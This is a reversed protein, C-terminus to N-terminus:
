RLGASITGGEERSNGSIAFSMVLRHGINGVIDHSKDDLWGGYKGEVLVKALYLPLYSSPGRLHTDALPVGTVSFPRFLQERIDEPLRHSRDEFIIQWTGDAEVCHVTIQPEVGSPTEIRRQALWQMVRIVAVYMDDQKVKIRFSGEVTFKIGSLYMRDKLDVFAKEILEKIEFYVHEEDSDANTVSALIKGAEWLDDAMTNLKHHTNSEEQLNGTTIGREIIGKQDQGLFLCLHSISKLLAAKKQADFYALIRVFHEAIPPRVYQALIGGLKASDDSYKAEDPLPPILGLSLRVNRVNALPVFVAQPLREYLRLEAPTTPSPLHRIDQASVEYVPSSGRVEHTIAQLRAYAPQYGRPLDTNTLCNQTGSEDTLLLAYPADLCAGLEDALTEQCLKRVATSLTRTSNSIARINEAVCRRELRLARKLASARVHRIIDSISTEEKSLYVAAGLRLALSYYNVEAYASQILYEPLWDPHQDQLQICIDVGTTNPEISDELRMDLVIVDIEEGLDNMVQRAQGVTGASAVRFHRRELASQLALRQAESDEIIMVTKSRM